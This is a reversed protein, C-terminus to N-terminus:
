RALLANFHDEFALVAAKMQPLYHWRDYIEEVDTQVAAAHNILREAIESALGADRADLGAARELLLDSAYGGGEVKQLVDFAIKWAASLAM